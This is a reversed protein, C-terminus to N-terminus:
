SLTRSAGDDEWGFRSIEVFPTVDNADSSHVPVVPPPQKPAAQVATVPPEHAEVAAAMAAELAQQKRALLQTLDRVNGPAEAAALLERLEAVESQLADDAM